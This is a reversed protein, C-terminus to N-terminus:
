LRVVFLLLKGALVVLSGALCFAVLGIVTYAAWVAFKQVPSLNNQMM